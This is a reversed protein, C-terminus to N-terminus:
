FAINMKSHLLDQFHISHEIVSIAIKHLHSANLLDERSQPNTVIMESRRRTEEEDEDIEGLEMWAQVLSFSSSSWAWSLVLGSWTCARVSTTVDM